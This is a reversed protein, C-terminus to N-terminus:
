AEFKMAEAVEIRTARYAPYISAIVGIAFFAVVAFLQGGPTTGPLALAQAEAESRRHTWRTGWSTKKQASM